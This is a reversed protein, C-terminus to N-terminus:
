VARLRIRRRAGGPEAISVDTRAPPIRTASRTPADALEPAVLRCGPPVIGFPPTQGEGLALTDSPDDISVSLVYAWAISIKEL